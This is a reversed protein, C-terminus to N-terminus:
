VLDSDPEGLEARPLPATLARVFKALAQGSQGQYPAHWRLFRREPALQADGSSPM